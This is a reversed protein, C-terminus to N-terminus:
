ARRRIGRTSCCGSAFGDGLGKLFTLVPLLEGAGSESTREPVVHAVGRAILVRPCVEPGRAVAGDSIGKDVAGAPVGIVFVGSDDVRRSTYEGLGGSIVDVTDPATQLRERVDELERACAVAHVGEVDIASERSCRRM